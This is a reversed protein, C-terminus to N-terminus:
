ATAWDSIASSRRAPSRSAGDGAATGNLDVERLADCAALHRLGADTVRTWALSLTELAPLRTLVELAEDTVATGSLNLHTLGPLRALHRIGADTLAPSSDLDLRTLHAHRSVRDLWADTMQGHAHLGTSSPDDLADIAEDVDRSALRIAPSEGADSRGYVALPKSVLTVGRPASATFAVLAAWSEFQQARAVLSRAEDLTITDEEGPAPEETRGLDLRVYRKMGDLARRHGFYEWVTALAHADGTQFARVLAAAVAEYHASSTRSALRDLLATWGPLGHELALARQVDRLTPSAPANPLARDLRARAEPDHTGLAHLWRKAERKLNDLSTRPTIPRPDVPLSM